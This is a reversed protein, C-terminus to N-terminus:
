YNAIKRALVRDVTKEIGPLFPDMSGMGHNREQAGVPAALLADNWRQFILKSPSDLVNKRAPAPQAFCLVWYVTVGFSSAADIVDLTPRWALFHARLYSLCLTIAATTGIGVALSVSYNRWSLALRREFLFFLLLLGCQMLRISREIIDVASFCKVIATGSTAFATLTGVLLLFVAAWRFVMKGLDILGTYPDLANVLLEYMVGFELLMLLTNFVWYLYFYQVGTLGIRTGMTALLLNSAASFGIYSLFVPFNSRIHRRILAVFIAAQVLGTGISFATAAWDLPSFNV